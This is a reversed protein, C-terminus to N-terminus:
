GDVNVAEHTVSVSEVAAVMYSEMRMYSFGSLAVRVCGAQTLLMRLRDPTVDRGLKESQWAKYVELAGGPGEVANVVAAEQGMPVVYHLTINLPATEPARVEVVDTLPRRTRDNCSAYVLDLISQTAVTGNAMLVAIEVVGPVRMRVGVDSISQHASLAWYRYADYPGATSFKGPAIRIRERLSDDTEMDAGDRSTDINEVSKVFRVPDVLENILEAALGNGQVGPVTCQALVDGNMAGPPISLPELTAFFLNGGNTARIGMPVFVTQDMKASLTFRLTTIAPYPDLRTVDVLEGMGDLIDGRAYRLLTQRAADDVRAYAQNAFFLLMRLVIERADGPYLVDGAEQAFDRLMRRWGVDADYEIFHIEAM